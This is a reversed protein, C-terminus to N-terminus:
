NSALIIALVLLILLVLVTAAARRGSYSSLDPAPGPVPAAPPTVPTASPVRPPQATVAPRPPLPMRDVPMRLYPRSDLVALLTAAAPRQAPVTALLSDRLIEALVPDPLDDLAHLVHVAAREGTLLRAVLLAVRYRDTTTDAPSSRPAHPDEWNPQFINTMRHRGCGDVDIVYASHDAPSYFANSYSWDSYVLGYRGLLAAVSVLDHSVRLREKWTPPTLGRRAFSADPRALWDVELYREASGPPFAARFRAPARPLVCGVTKGGDLLAAVPWSTSAAVRDRDAPPMSAPLGILWDLCGAADMDAPKHYLKALWGDHGPLPHIGTSQGAGPSISAPLPGLDALDIAAALPWAAPANM